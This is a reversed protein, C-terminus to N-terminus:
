RQILKKISSIITSYGLVSLSLEMGWYLFTMYWPLEAQKVLIIAVPLSLILPLFNYFRKLKQEKDFSKLWESIGVIAISGYLITDKNM